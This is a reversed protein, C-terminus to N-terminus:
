KLDGVKAKRVSRDHEFWVIAGTMDPNTWSYSGGAYHGEAGVLQQVQLYSMGPKIQQYKALTMVTPAPPKKAAPIRLCGALPLAPAVALSLLVFKKM